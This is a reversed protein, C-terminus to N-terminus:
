GQKNKELPQECFFFFVIESPMRGLFKHHSALAQAFRSEAAAHLHTAASISGRLM